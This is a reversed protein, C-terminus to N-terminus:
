LSILNVKIEKLAKAYKVERSSDQAKQIQDLTDNKNEHSTIPESQRVESVKAAHMDPAPQSSSM